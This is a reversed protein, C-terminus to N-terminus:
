SLYGEERWLGPHIDRGVPCGETDEELIARLCQACGRIHESSDGNRVREKLEARAKRRRDLRALREQEDEEAFRRILESVANMTDEEDIPGV